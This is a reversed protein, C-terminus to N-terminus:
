RTIQGVVIRNPGQVLLIRDNMQVYKMGDLGPIAAVDRPLDHLEVSAPLIQAPEAEIRATAAGAKRVSERIRRRQEESLGLPQAMIPLRDLAANRESFKAPVTEGDQPAGQVNLRGNVFVRNDVAKPVAHVSPEETGAQGSKSRLARKAQADQEGAGTARQDSSPTGSTGREDSPSPPQQSQTQPPQSQPPAGNPSQQAIAFGASMALAFASVGRILM